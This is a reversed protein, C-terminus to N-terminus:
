GSEYRTSIDLTMRFATGGDGRVEWDEVVYEGPSIAADSVGSPLAIDVSQRSDPTTDRTFTEGDPVPSVVAGASAALVTEALEAQRDTLVIPVRTTEGQSIDGVRDTVITGRNFTFTWGTGSNVYGDVSDRTQSAVLSITAAVAKTDISTRDRSVDAVLWDRVTRPPRLRVPPRVTFTNDGGARDLGVTTGDARERTDVAGANTDLTDLLQRESQSRARVELRLETPTLTVGVVRITAGGLAWRQGQAPDTDWHTADYSEDQLYGGAPLKVGYTGGDWSAGDYSFGTM